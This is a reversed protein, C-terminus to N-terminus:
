DKLLEGFAHHSDVAERAVAELLVLDERPIQRISSHPENGNEPEHVIRVKSGNDKCVQKFKGVQSVALRAKAGM